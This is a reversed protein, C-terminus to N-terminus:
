VLTEEVQQLEGGLKQTHAAADGEPHYVFGGWVCVCVRTLIFRERTCVRGDPQLPLNLNEARSGRFNPTAQRPRVAGCGRRRSGEWDGVVCQPRGGARAPRTLAWRRPQPAVFAAFCIPGQVVALVAVAGVSRPWSGDSNSDSSFGQESDGGVREM